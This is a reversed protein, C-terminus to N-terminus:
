KLEQLATRANEAQLLDFSPNTQLANQLYQVAEKKNKLAKEIMGAHYFIRADKNKLRMAEAIASKAEKFDGKKYLCWAYIDATYIDKRNTHERTAIELAEDLKLDHDAWFLALNRQDNNLGLKQEIVEVLKYQEDSKEANGTKKYLDGLEIVTQTLPVRDQAETLFKIANQYDGDAMRAQGKGALAFYYDPFIRLAMDYLTEAEHYKGAKFYENGLHVRCWAQSERDAPDAMKAAMGMAELAGGTDGYLSRIYSVRAYSEMNPKLNVMQQVAKAAEQYNGLEVNADTLTGYIFPDQPFQPQLTQSAELAEAFRHFTLLLSIHLKQAMADAPEIELARNIAIEAKSNLSFDGNERALRIYAIALQNYGMATNPSKAILEQAKNIQPNSSVENTPKEVKASQETSSAVKQEFCSTTSFIITLLIITIIFSKNVRM